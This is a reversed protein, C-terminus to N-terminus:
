DLLNHAVRDINDISCDRTSQIRSLETYTLYKWNENVFMNRFSPDSYAQLEDKREDPIIMYKPISVEVNSARMLANIFNTSNEVEFIVKINNDKILLCDIWAIRDIKSADYADSLVQLDTYDSLDKLQQGNDLREPQERKGVYCMMNMRKAVKCLQAIMKTHMTAETLIVDKLKWKGASQYAYRELISKIKRPDPTLGNPYMRFLEAIVDDLKVSIRRRLISLVTENVRDSLPIDPYNIYKSPENFWWITGGKNDPNSIVNFVKEQGIYKSLVQNIQESPEDPQLYGAQLMEPLVGNLIFDYPTPEARRAIVEITKQFIFHELASRDNSFDVNRSKVCRIYFDSGATGYPNSVNSEGSRRNYQHTVKDFKFGANRVANVFDNWEEMEKNHFTIVLYGDDKLVKHINVFANQLRRKYIDRSIVGPKVTIESSLDPTYKSNYNQLWVLWILSLDLYQVLGGYPPDTIVFDVSKEPIFDTLDAVDITGYNIYASSSYRNGRKIENIRIPTSLREKANKLAAVVGQKDFCAREFVVAPNQEMRRNRIMYDARGWSGSYSRNGREQRAVVMKTVLHLTHVFAYLLPLQVNNPKHKILEYIKSLFYLNRKTWLFSFDNGGIDRIFKGKISPTNPFACRPHWFPIQIQDMNIAREYDSDDPVIEVEADNEDKANIKWITNDKWIYNYILCKHGAYQKNYHEKYIPDSNIDDLIEQASNCFSVQDFDSTMVEIFFASMPNIDFAIAKRNSAASEFAAVGSGAFPDLVIGNEPCYCEIFEKWINHPKKGWYKMAKYMPPRSEEVLAHNLHENIIM